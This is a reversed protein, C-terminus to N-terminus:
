PPGRSATCSRTGPATDHDRSGSADRRVAPDGGGVDSLLYVGGDAGGDHRVFPGAAQEQIAVTDVVRDMVALATTAAM